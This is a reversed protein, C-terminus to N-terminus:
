ISMLREIFLERNPLGTLRDHVARHAHLSALEDFVRAIPVTGVFGTSTVILDDYRYGAERRLALAAAEEVLMAGGLILTEEGGPLQSVPRHGYLSRGHGIPGALEVMLRRRTLIELRDEPYAVVVSSIHLERAFHREVDQCVVDSTFVTAPDAIERVRRRRDALEPGFTLRM